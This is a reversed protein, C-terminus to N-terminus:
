LYCQFYAQPMINECDADLNFMMCLQASPILMPSIYEKSVSLIRTGSHAVRYEKGFIGTIYGQGVQGRPGLFHIVQNM